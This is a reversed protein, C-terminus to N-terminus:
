DLCLLDEKEYLKMLQMVSKASGKKITVVTGNPFTVNIGSLMDVEQAPELSPQLPLFMGVADTQSSESAQNRVEAQAVLVEKRAKYVSYGKKCMWNQMTRHNVHREELFPTLQAKPHRNLYILFSNWAKEYREEAVTM